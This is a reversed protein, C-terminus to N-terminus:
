STSSQDYYDCYNNSLCNVFTIEAWSIMMSENEFLKTRGMFDDDEWKWITKRVHSFLSGSMSTPKIKKPNWSTLVYAMKTITIYFLSEKEQFNSESLFFQRNVHKSGSANSITVM